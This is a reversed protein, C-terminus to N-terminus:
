NAESEAAVWRPKKNSGTNKIKKEKRSLAAILNRIKNRKQNGSLVDSLKDMLLNDIDGRTAYKFQKIYDLIMKKYHSDDFPRNKIYQAKSNTIVAVPAAIYLNPYRGEVLRQRKLKAADDRSIQEHKQARDLLIVTKIDLNTKNILLRTYNEDIIKGTIRVRVRDTQSLDYDPLPFYRNM